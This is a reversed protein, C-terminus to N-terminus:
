DGKQKKKRKAEPKVPEEGAEPAEVETPTPAIGSGYSNRQAYPKVRFDSVAVPEDEGALEVLSDMGFVTDGTQLKLKGLIGEKTGDFLGVIRVGVLNTVAIKEGMEFEAIRRLTKVKRPDEPVANKRKRNLLAMLESYRYQGPVNRIHSKFVPKVKHNIIRQRLAEVSVGSEINKLVFDGVTILSNEETM